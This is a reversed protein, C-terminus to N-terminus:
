VEIRRGESVLATITMGECDCPDGTELTWVGGRQDTFSVASLAERIDISAHAEGGMIELRIANNLAAEDVIPGRLIVTETLLEIPIAIPISLAGVLKFFGRRTTEIDM